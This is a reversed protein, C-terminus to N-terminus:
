YLDSLSPDSVMAAEFSWTMVRAAIVAARLPMTQANMMRRPRVPSKTIGTMMTIVTIVAFYVSASNKGAQDQAAQYVFDQFVIIVLVIGIIFVM